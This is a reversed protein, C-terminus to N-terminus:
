KMRMVVKESGIWQGLETKSEVLRDCGQERQELPKQLQKWQKWLRLARDDPSRRVARWLERLEAAEIPAVNGKLPSQYVLLADIGVTDTVDDAEEVKWFAGLMVETLECTSWQQVEVEADLEKEALELM